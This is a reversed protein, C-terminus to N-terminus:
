LTFFHLLPFPFRFSVRPSNYVKSNSIETVYQWALLIFQRSSYHDSQDLSNNSFFSSVVVVSLFSERRHHPSRTSYRYHCVMKTIPIALQRDRRSVWGKLNVNPWNITESAWMCCEYMQFYRRFEIRVRKIRTNWKFLECVFFCWMWSLWASHSPNSKKLLSSYYPMKCLLKYRTSCIKRLIKFDRLFSFCRRRTKNKKKRGKFRVFM